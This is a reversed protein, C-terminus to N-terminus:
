DHAASGAQLTVIDSKLVIYNPQTHDASNQISFVEYDTTNATVELLVELHGTLNGLIDVRQGSTFVFADNECKDEFSLSKVKIGDDADSATGNFSLVNGADCPVTYQGSSDVFPALSDDTSTFDPWYECGSTCSAQLPRHANASKEECIALYHPTRCVWVWNALLSGMTATIVPPGTSFGTEPPNLAIGFDDGTVTLVEGTLSSKYEIRFQGAVLGRNMLVVDPEIEVCENTVGFFQLVMVDHTVWPTVQIRNLMLLKNHDHKPVDYFTIADPQERGRGMRWTQNCEPDNYFHEYLRSNPM